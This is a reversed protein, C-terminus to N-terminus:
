PKIALLEKVAQVPDDANTIFDSAAVGNAGAALMAPLTDPTHLCPAAPGVASM